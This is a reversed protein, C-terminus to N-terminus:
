RFDLPSRCHIPIELVHSRFDIQNAEGFTVHKKVTASLYSLPAAIQGSSFGSAGALFRQIQRSCRGFHANKSDDAVSIMEDENRM